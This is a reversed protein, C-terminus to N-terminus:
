VDGEFEIELHFELVTGNCVSSERETYATSRADTRWGLGPLGTRKSIVSCVGSLAWPASFGWRGTLTLQQRRRARHDQDAQYWLPCQDMVPACPPNVSCHITSM